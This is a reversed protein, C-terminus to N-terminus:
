AAFMLTLHIRSSNIKLIVAAKVADSQAMGLSDVDHGADGSLAM